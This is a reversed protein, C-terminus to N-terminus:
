CVYQRAANVIGEADSQSIESHGARPHTSILDSAISSVSRGSALMRCIEHADDVEGQQGSQDVTDMGLSNIYNLFQQEGNTWAGATPALAVTGTVVAAACGLAITYRTM